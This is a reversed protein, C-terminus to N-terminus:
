VARKPLCQTDCYILRTRADRVYGREVFNGCLACKKATRPIRDNVLVFRTQYPFEGKAFISHTTMSVEMPEGNCIQAAGCM